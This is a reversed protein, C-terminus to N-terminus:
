GRWKVMLIHYAAAFVCGDEGLHFNCLRLRNWLDVPVLFTNDLTTFTWQVFDTVVKMM